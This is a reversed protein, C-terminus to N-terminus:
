ESISGGEIIKCYPTFPNGCSFDDYESWFFVLGYSKTLGKKYDKEWSCGAGDVIPEDLTKIIIDLEELSDYKYVNSSSTAFPSLAQTDVKVGYDYEDDDDSDEDELDTIENYIKAVDSELYYKSNEMDDCDQLFWTNMKIGEVVELRVYEGNTIECSYVKHRNEAVVVDKYNLVSGGFQKEYLQDVFNEVTGFKEIVAEYWHSSM